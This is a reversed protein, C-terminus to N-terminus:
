YSFPLNKYHFLQFPEISSLDHNLPVRNRNCIPEVSKYNKTREKLIM